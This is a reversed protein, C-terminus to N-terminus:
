YYIELACVKVSLRLMVTNVVCETVLVTEASQSIIKWEMAASGFSILISGKMVLILAVM